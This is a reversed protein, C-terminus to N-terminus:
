NGEPLLPLLAPCLPDAASSTQEEILCFHRYPHAINEAKQEAGRWRELLLVDRCRGQLAPVWFGASFVVIPTLLLLTCAIFTHMYM